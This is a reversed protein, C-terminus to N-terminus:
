RAQWDEYLVLESRRKAKERAKKPRKTGNTSSAKTIFILHYLLRSEPGPEAVM